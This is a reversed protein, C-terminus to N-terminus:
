EADTQDECSSCYAYRGAHTLQYGTVTIPFRGSDHTIMTQLLGEDCLDRYVRSKSQFPLCNEIEAVWVNRLAALM